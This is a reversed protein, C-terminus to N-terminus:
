VKPMAKRKRVEAKAAELMGKKPNDLAFDAAFDEVSDYDGIGTVANPSGANPSGANLSSSADGMGTRGIKSPGGTTSRPAFYEPSGVAPSPSDGM